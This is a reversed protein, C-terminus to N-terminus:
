SSLKRWGVMISSERGRGVNNDKKEMYKDVTVNVM